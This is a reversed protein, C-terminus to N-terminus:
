GGETNSHNNHTGQKPRSPVKPISPKLPYLGSPHIKLSKGEPGVEAKQSAGPSPMM